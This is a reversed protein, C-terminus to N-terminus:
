KCKREYLTRLEKSDIDDPDCGEPLHVINYETKNKFMNICQKLCKNGADDNDFSFTLEVNLKMLEEYQEVSIHSGFVALVNNIGAKHYAWVDFIGETLIINNILNEKILKEVIDNNYFINHLKVGKPQYIWKPKEDDLARMAIGILNTNKYIPIVLKNNFEKDGIRVTKALKANYHSLVQEDFRTFIGGYQTIEYSIATNEKKDAIRKKMSELWRIQERQYRVETEEISMGEISVDLISSAKKVADQFSCGEMKMILDFVDGGGCEGTFCFWLNNSKKWIFAEPNDGNHIACCARIESPKNHIHKFHYYNLIKLPDISEKILEVANM